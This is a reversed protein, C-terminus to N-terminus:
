SEPAVEPKTAGVEYGVAHQRKTDYPDLLLCSLPFLVTTLLKLMPYIPRLLTKWRHRKPDSFAYRYFPQIRDGILRFYGGQPM